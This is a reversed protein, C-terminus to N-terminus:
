HPWYCGDSDCKTPCPHGNGSYPYGNITSPCGTRHTLGYILAFTGGAIAGLILPHRYAWNHKPATGALMLEGSGLDSVAPIVWVGDASKCCWASSPADPLSAEQGLAGCCLVLLVGVAQRFRIM